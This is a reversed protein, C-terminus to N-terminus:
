GCSWWEKLSLPCYGTVLPCDGSKGIVVTMSLILVKLLLDINWPLVIEHSSTVNGTIFFIVLCDSSLLKMAEFLVCLCHFYTKVICINCFVCFLFRQMLTHASTDQLALVPFNWSLWSSLVTPSCKLCCQFYRMTVATNWYWLLPLTIFKWSPVSTNVSSRLKDNWGFVEM